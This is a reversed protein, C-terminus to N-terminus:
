VATMCCRSSQKSFTSGGLGAAHLQISISVHMVLGATHLLVGISRHMVLGAAHLQIGISMHMVLRAAHLIHKHERAHDQM